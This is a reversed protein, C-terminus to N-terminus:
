YRQAFVKLGLTNLADFYESMVCNMTKIDLDFAREVRLALEEINKGTSKAFNLKANADLNRLNEAMKKLEKRGELESELECEVKVSSMPVKIVKLAVNEIISKESVLNFRHIYAFRKDPM